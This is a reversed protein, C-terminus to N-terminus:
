TSLQKLTSLENKLKTFDNIIAKADLNSKIEGAILIANQINDIILKRESAFQAPKMKRYNSKFKTAQTDVLEVLQNLIKIKESENGM